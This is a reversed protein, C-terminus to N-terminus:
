KVINPFLLDDQHINMKNASKEFAEFLVAFNPLEAVFEKGIIMDRTKLIIVGLGKGEYKSKGEKTSLAFTTHNANKTIELLLVKRGCKVEFESIGFPLTATNINEENLNVLKREM